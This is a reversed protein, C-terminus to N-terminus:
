GVLRPSAEPKNHARRRAWQCNEPSYGGAQDIRYLCHWPSPRPGMDAFFSEFSAAWRACVPVGRHKINIWVKHEPTNSRGHRTPM